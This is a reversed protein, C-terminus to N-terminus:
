MGPTWEIQFIEPCLCTTRECCAKKTEEGLDAQHVPLNSRDDDRHAVHHHVDKDEEKDEDDDVDAEGEAGDIDVTDIILVPLLLKM